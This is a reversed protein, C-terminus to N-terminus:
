AAAARAGRASREAKFREVDRTWFLPTKTKGVRCIPAPFEPHELIAQTAQRTVGFMAAIEFRGVIAEPQTSSKM